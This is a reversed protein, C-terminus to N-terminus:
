SHHNRRGKGHCSVFMKQEHEKSREMLTQPTEPPAPPSTNLLDHPRCAIGLCTPWTTWATTVKCQSSMLTPHVAHLAKTCSLHLEVQHLKQWTIRQLTNFQITREAKRFSMKKSIRQSRVVICSIVSHLTFRSLSCIVALTRKPLIALWPEGWLLAYQQWVRPVGWTTFLWVDNRPSSRLCHKFPKWAKLM